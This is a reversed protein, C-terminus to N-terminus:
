VTVEAIDRIITATGTAITVTSGAATTVELEYSQKLSALAATDAADPEFVVTYGTGTSTVSAATWTAQWLKLKAGAAPDDLGLLHSADTVAFSIQRAEAAVYDDGAYITLTGDTAVPSTVTVTLSGLGGIVAAAITSAKAVIVAEIADLDDQTLTLAM